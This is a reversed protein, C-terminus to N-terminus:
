KGAKIQEVARKRAVPLTDTVKPTIEMLAIQMDPHVRNWSEVNNKFSHASGYVLTAVGEGKSAGAALIRLAEFERIETTHSDDKAVALAALHDANAKKTESPLLSAIGKDRYLRFAGGMGWLSEFAADAQKADGAM